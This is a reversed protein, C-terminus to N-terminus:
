SVGHEGDDELERDDGHDEPEEEDQEVREVPGLVWVVYSSPAKLARQQSTSIADPLFCCSSSM